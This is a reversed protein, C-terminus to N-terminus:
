FHLEDIDIDTAVPPPPNICGAMPNPEIDSDVWARYIGILTNYANRIHEPEYDIDVEWQEGYEDIAQLGHSYMIYQTGDGTQMTFVKETRELDFTEM